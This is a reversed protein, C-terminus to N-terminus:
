VDIGGLRRGPAQPKVLVQDFTDDLKKWQYGSPTQKFIPVTLELAGNCNPCRGKPPYHLDTSYQEPAIRMVAWATTPADCHACPLPDNFDADRRDAASALQQLAQRRTVTVQKQVPTTKKM